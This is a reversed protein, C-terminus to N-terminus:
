RTSWQHFPDDPHHVQDYAAILAAARLNFEPDLLDRATFRRPSHMQETLWGLWGPSIQMLGICPPVSSSIAWPTCKSERWMIRSAHLVDWGNPPAYLALAAEYQTCRGVISTGGPGMQITHVDLVTTTTEPITTTTTTSPIPPPGVEVVTTTTTTTLQVMEPEARGCSVAVWVLVALLLFPSFAIIWSILWRVRRRAARM